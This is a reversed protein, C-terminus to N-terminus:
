FRELFRRIFGKKNELRYIRTVINDDSEVLLSSLTQVREELNETHILLGDILAKAQPGTYETPGDMIEAAKAEVKANNNNKAARNKKAAEAEKKNITALETKFKNMNGNAALAAAITRGGVKYKKALATKSMTKADSRIQQLKTVNMPEIAKTKAM